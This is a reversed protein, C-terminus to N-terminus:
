KELELVFHCYIEPSLQRANRVVYLRATLGHSRAPDLVRTRLTKFSYKRSCPINRTDTRVYERSGPDGYGRGWFEASSYTCDHTHMYLPVIIAKGGPKLIRAFEAIARSDADGAFMEYACHLAVGKVSNTKFSTLTADEQLYFDSSRFSEGVDLDIAYSSIGLKNRLILTWPSSGAAVDVFIDESAYREIGLLKCSLFHEFLKENWYGTNKGGHYDAPFPFRRKFLEFEDPNCSFDYLVDGAASLSQEIYKLENDTPNKYLDAKRSHLASAQFRLENLILRLTGRFGNRAM